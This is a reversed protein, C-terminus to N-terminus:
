ASLPAICKQLESVRSRAIIVCQFGDFKISERRKLQRSAISRPKGGRGAGQTAAVGHILIRLALPAFTCAARQRQFDCKVIRSMLTLSPSVAIRHTM